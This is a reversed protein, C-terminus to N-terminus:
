SRSPLLDEASDTSVPLCSATSPPWRALLYPTRLAIGRRKINRAIVVSSELRCGAHVVVCTEKVKLRHKMTCKEWNTCYRNFSLQDLVSCQGMRCLRVDVLILYTLGKCNMAVAVCLPIGSHCSALM